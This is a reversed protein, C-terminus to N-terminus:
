AYGGRPPPPPPSESPRARGPPGPRVPQGLPRLRHGARAPVRGLPPGGARGAPHPPPPHNLRLQSQSVYDASEAREDLMSELQRDQGLPAWRLRRALVLPAPSEIPPPPCHEHRFAPQHSAFKTPWNTGASPLLAALFRRWLRGHDHYHNSIPIASVCLDPSTVQKRNPLFRPPLGAPHVNAIDRPRTQCGLLLIPTPGGPHVNAIESPRTPFKLKQRSDKPRESFTNLM